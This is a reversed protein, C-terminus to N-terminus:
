KDHTVSVKAGCEPMSTGMYPNAIKPDNQVWLKYGKSMPCEFMHYREAAAPMSQVMTVMPRSIEGFTTRMAEIDEPKMDAMTAAHTAMAEFHAKTDESASDAASAAADRLKAAGEAAGAADDKVLASRVNEYSPMVSDVPTAAGQPPAKAQTNAEKDKDCASMGLPALIMVAVTALARAWSHRIFM